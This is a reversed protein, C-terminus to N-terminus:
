MEAATFAFQQVILALHPINPAIQVRITFETGQKAVAVSLVIQDEAGFQISVADQLHLASLLHVIDRGTDVRLLALFGFFHEDPSYSGSVSRSATMPQM